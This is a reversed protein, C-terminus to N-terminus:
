VRAPTGKIPVRTLGGNLLVRERHDSSPPLGDTVRRFVKIAHHPLGTGGPHRPGVDAAGGTADGM